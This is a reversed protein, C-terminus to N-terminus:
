QKKGGRQTAKCLWMRLPGALTAKGVIGNLISISTIGIQVSSLFRNPNEALEIATQAGASGADVMQQLRARRASVIAIEAMSFLGNIVALLLVILLDIM